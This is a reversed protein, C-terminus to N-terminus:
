KIKKFLKWAVGRATAVIYGIVRFRVDSYYNSESLCVYVSRSGSEWGWYSQSTRTSLRRRVFDRGFFTFCQGVDDQPIPTCGFLISFYRLCVSGRAQMSADTTWSESCTSKNHRQVTSINCESFSMINSGILFRRAIIRNRPYDFQTSWPLLNTKIPRRALSSSIQSSLAIEDTLTSQTV